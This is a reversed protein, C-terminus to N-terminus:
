FNRKWKSSVGKFKTRENNMKREGPYFIMGTGALIFGIAFEFLNIKGFSGTIDLILIILGIAVLFYGPKKYSKITSRTEGHIYENMQRKDVEKLISQIEELNVNRFKLENKIQNLNQGISKQELCFQIHKEFDKSHQM